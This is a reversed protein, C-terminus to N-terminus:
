LRDGVLVPENVLELGFAKRVGDRIERALALLDATSAGGRNTLALPHKTSIGARGVQYGKKFGTREIVWAASVKVRTGAEPWHPPTAGARATLAAFEEATLIPNTFFSGVSATDPDGPEIVMGKRRRLALVADRVDALDARSGTQEGLAAALEPYRLPRSLGEPSLTLSVDLVVYRDTDKLRSHRYSFGCEAPSLHLVRRQHRDYVRVESITEVVEQGYAGVNQIPTAGASGPIGSLCEIGSLGEAVSRAVVRDWPEGAQVTLRVAGSGDRLASVGSTRVLVVTGAFGEDAIVVNSGGALVLLPEEAADVAAVAEVLEGPTTVTILTGAPGGVHLTTLPALPVQSERQM